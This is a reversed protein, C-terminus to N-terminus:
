GHDQCMRHCHVHKQASLLTTLPVALDLYNSLDILHHLHSGNTYMESRGKMRMNDNIVVYSFSRFGLIMM